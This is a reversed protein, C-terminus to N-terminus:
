RNVRTGAATPANLRADAIANSHFCVSLFASVAVAAFNFKMKPFTVSSKKFKRLDEQLKKGNGVSGDLKWACVCSHSVLVVSVVAAFAISSKWFHM